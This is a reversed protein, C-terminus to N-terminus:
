CRSSRIGYTTPVVLSSAPRRSQLVSCETEGTTGTTSAGCSAEATRSYTTTMRGVSRPPGGCSYTSRSRGFCPCQGFVSTRRPRSRARQSRASSSSRRKACTRGGCPWRKARDCGPMRWSPSSHRMVCGSANSSFSGFGNWPRLRRQLWLVRVVHDRSGYRECRTPMSSAECCRSGAYALCSPSPSRSPPM